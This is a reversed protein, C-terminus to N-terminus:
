HGFFHDTGRQIAGRTRDAVNGGRHHADRSNCATCLLQLNSLADDGGHAQAQVHDGSSGQIPIMGQCHPCTFVPVYVPTGNRTWPMWLFDGRRLARNIVRGRFSTEPQEDIDHTQRARDTFNPM